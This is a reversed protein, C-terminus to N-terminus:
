QHAAEYSTELQEKAALELAADMPIERMHNKKELYQYFVYKGIQCLWTSMKSEGRFEGVKRIARLFTEQTLDEALDRNGGTLSLLYGLIIHYYEECIKSFDM